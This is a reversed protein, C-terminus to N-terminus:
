PVIEKHKDFFAAAESRSIFGDKDTDALKIVGDWTGYKKSYTKAEELTVVGDKNTDRLNFLRRDEASINPDWEAMTMKQDRNADRSAFIATVMYDHVEDRSLKGDGNLDAQDFRNPSTQCAALALLAALAHVQPLIRM